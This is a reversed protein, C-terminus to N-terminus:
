FQSGARMAVMEPTVMRLPLGPPVLPPPPIKLTPVNVSVIACHAPIAGVLVAATDRVVAVHHEGHHEGVACHAPIPGASAAAANKM